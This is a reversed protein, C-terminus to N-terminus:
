LSFRPREKVDKVHWAGGKGVTWLDHDGLAIDVPNNGNGGVRISGLAWGLEPDITDVVERGAAFVIRNSSTRFKKNSHEIARSLLRRNVLVPIKAGNFNTAFDWTWDFFFLQSTEKIYCFAEHLQFTLIQLQEVTANSGIIDFFRQDYAVFSSQQIHDNTALTLVKM